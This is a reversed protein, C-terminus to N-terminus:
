AAAQESLKPVFAARAREVYALLGPRSKVNKQLLTEVPASLISILFPVASADAYTPEDGFLFAKEGLLVELADFDKSVRAVVQEPSMRGIGQSTMATKVGDRVSEAVQDRMSEPLGAFIAPKLHPWIDDLVWRDYTISLIVHEEMMRSIAHGQAKQLPSLGKNFDCGYVTELHEAINSSDAIQKDGDVLVPFKGLPADQVNATFDPKWNLGSMELLCMAKLCYASATVEGFAPGISNLTLM